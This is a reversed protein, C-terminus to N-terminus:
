CHATEKKMRETGDVDPSWSRGITELRENQYVNIKNHNLELLLISVISRYYITMVTLTIKLIIYYNIILYVINILFFVKHVETARDPSCHAHRTNLGRTPM